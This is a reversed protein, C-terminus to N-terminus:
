GGVFLFGLGALRPPRLTKSGPIFQNYSVVDKCYNLRPYGLGKPKSM